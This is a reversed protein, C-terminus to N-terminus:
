KKSIFALLTSALRQRRGSTRIKAATKMSSQSIEVTIVMRPVQLALHLRDRALQHSRLLPIPSHGDRKKVWRRKFILPPPISCIRRSIDVAVSSIWREKERYFFNTSRSSSCSCTAADPRCCRDCTVVLFFFFFLSIIANSEFVTTGYLTRTLLIRDTGYLIGVPMKKMSIVRRTEDWWRGFLMLYPNALNTSTSETRRKKRHIFFLPFSNSNSQASQRRTIMNIHLSPAAHHWAFDREARRSEGEGACM